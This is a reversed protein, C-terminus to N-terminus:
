NKSLSPFLELILNRRVKVTVGEIVLSQPGDRGETVETGTLDILDRGRGFSPSFLEHQFAPLVIRALFDNTRPFHM